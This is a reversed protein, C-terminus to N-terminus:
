AQSPLGKELSERKELKALLRWVLLLARPVHFCCKYPGGKFRHTVEGRRDLYGYWEGFKPDSFRTFAYRHTEEFRAWDTQDGTLSWNLLHAYLAECHPWWLKMSWELQLPSYGKADLFYFIGGWERDWGLDHSWRVVEIAASQLDKRGLRQAWHQLFWGAEIAHGPNLLRGAPTDVFSGDPAVNELVVRKDAHLHLLMRRVCEDIESRYKKTDGDALVEILNLLIMPVALNQMPLEGEFDPRGVKRWDFAWDWIQAFLDEAEKLWTEEGSARAFEAFGMVYFCESFIKRQLSLPKGDATLSFYVRGDARRAHRRMFEAGSRAMALWEPKREVDRYLKSFIFVQRGQLWMYKATDYIAGDRDLCSFFGGNATDPSHKEWFPIVREFLETEYAGRLATIAAPDSKM